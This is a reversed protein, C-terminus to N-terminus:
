GNARAIRRTRDFMEDIIDTGVKKPSAGILYYVIAGEPIRMPLAKSVFPFGAVRSLRDRFAEVVADNDLKVLADDFLGREVAYAAERWSEDGWFRTMRKSAAAKVKTPDRWLANRNMDAIPFNLVLDITRLKGATELVQWDLHMGYPDLFLLGKRFTNYRMGPLIDRLLIENCDGAHVHVDPRDGVQKCLERLKEPNMDVFHYESFRPMIELIKLPTGSIFTGSKKSIHLGPGAFGDIYISKFRYKAIIRSYAGAYGSILRIKLESWEGV